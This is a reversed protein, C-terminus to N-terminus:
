VSLVAWEELLEEGEVGFRENVRAESELVRPDDEHCRELELVEVVVLEGGREVLDVHRERLLDRRQGLERLSRGDPRAELFPLGSIPMKLLSACSMLDFKFSRM